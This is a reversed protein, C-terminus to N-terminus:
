GSLIAKWAEVVRELHSEVAKLAQVELVLHMGGQLDLGLHIKDKPLVSSWWGPLDGTLTPTLYVFAMLVAFLAIAARWGLKKSV